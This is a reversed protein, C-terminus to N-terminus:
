THYNAVPFQGTATNPHATKQAKKVEVSTVSSVQLPNEILKRTTQHRGTQATEAGTGLM